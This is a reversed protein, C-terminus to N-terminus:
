RFLIPPHPSSEDPQPYPYTATEQSCPLSVDPEVFHESSNVLHVVILKSLRITSVKAM